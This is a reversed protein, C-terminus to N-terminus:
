VRCRVDSFMSPEHPVGSCNARPSAWIPLSRDRTACAADTKLCCRHQRAAFADCLSYRPKSCLMANGQPVSQGGAIETPARHALENQALLALFTAGTGHIAPFLRQELAVHDDLDQELPM